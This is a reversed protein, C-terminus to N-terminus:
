PLDELRRSANWQERKNRIIEQARAEQEPTPPNNKIKEALDPHIVVMGHHNGQEDFSLEVGEMAELMAEWFDRGEGSVVQGTAETVDSIHQLMGAVLQGAMSQAMADVDALFDEVDFNVATEVKALWEHQVVMPRYLLSQGTQETDDEVAPQGGPDDPDVDNSARPVDAVPERRVSKLIPEHELELATM